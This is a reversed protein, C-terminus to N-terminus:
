LIGYRPARKERAAWALAALGALGYLLAAMRYVPGIEILPILGLAFPPGLASGLDSISYMLGLSRGRQEVTSRDGIVAAALLPVGGATLSALLAGGVAWGASPLSMLYIGGVGALLLLAMVLWRRGIRDSFAGIPPASLTSVLVRVAVFAGTLTALPLFWPGVRLGGDLYQGLWLITTANLVGAFVFRMVFLPLSTKLATRWPFPPKRLRRRRPRPQYPQAPPRTEPLFRLWVLVGLLSLGTSVWLGGRYGFLDTFLGGAFSTVAVGLYFWMQLQGNVRGRDDPGSIDLAITSSGIWIGSWALGWLARAILMGLPGSVLAYLLTSLAGVALSAVMLQRRPLRDYLLGAPGNFLIRVFRNIGLLLGVMALTVGAQAAIEPRALVTYLTADGFLSLALGIGLPVLVRNHTSRAPATLPIQWSFVPTHHNYGCLPFFPALLISCLARAVRTGCPTYNM